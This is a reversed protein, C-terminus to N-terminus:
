SFQIERVVDMVPAMNQSIHQNSMPQLDEKTIMVNSNLQNITRLGTSGYQIHQIPDAYTAGFLAAIPTFAKM